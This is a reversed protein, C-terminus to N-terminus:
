CLNSVEYWHSGGICPCRWTTLMKDRRATSLYSDLSSGLKNGVPAPDIQLV